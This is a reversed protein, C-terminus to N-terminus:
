FAMQVIREQIQGGWRTFYSFLRHLEELRQLLDERAELASDGVVLWRADLERLETILGERLSHIQRQTAALKESWEQAREFMEVKLLPSTVRGKEALVEDAQRCLQSVELFRDMLGPPIDQIEKPKAGRELELLHGLREKPERLCNYAANLEAYRLQAGRKEEDSARHVRDPHFQASLCLFKQKLLDPDLWPRRPEDLLAFCDRV